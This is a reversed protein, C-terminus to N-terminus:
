VTVGRAVLEEGKWNGVWGTGRGERERGTGSRGFGMGEMEGGKLGM